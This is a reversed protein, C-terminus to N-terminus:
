DFSRSEVLVEDPNKAWSSGFVLPKDYISIGRGKQSYRKLFDAIAFYVLAPNEVNFNEPTIRIRRGTMGAPTDYKCFSGEHQSFAIGGADLGVWEDCSYDKLLCRDSRELLSDDDWANRTRMRFIPVNAGITQLQSQTMRELLKAIAEPDSKKQSDQVNRRLGVTLDLFPNRHIKHIGGVILDLFLNRQIGCYEYAYNVFTNRERQLALDM